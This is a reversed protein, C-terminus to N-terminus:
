SKNQGGDISGHHIAPRARGELVSLREFSRGTRVPPDLWREKPVVRPHYGNLLEPRFHRIADLKAAILPSGSADLKALV